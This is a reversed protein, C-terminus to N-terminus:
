VKYSFSGSNDTSSNWALSVNYPTTSTVRLNTPKTPATRDGAALAPSTGFISVLMVLIAAVTAARWLSINRIM